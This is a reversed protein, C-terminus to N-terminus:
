VATRFPSQLTLVCLIPATPPATRRRQVGTRSRLRWSLSASSRRRCVCRDWSLRWCGTSRRRSWVRSRRRVRFW